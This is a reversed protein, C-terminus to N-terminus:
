DGSTSSPYNSQRISIMDPDERRLRAMYREYIEKLSDMLIYATDSREEPTGISDPNAYMFASRMDDLIAFAVKNKAEAERATLSRNREERAADAVPDRPHKRRDRMPGMGPNNVYASADRMGDDAESMELEEKIIQKLKEKSIKM